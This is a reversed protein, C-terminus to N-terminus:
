KKEPPPAAGLKEPMDAVVYAMVAVAAIDRRLDEPRDKDLTDAHTHHYDFYTSSDMSLGLGAVGKDVLEGVDAGSHGATIRTAGIPELLSAIDTARRVADADGEVSFGRPAFVGTDAELAMVHGKMEAAHDVVYQKAGRLGNEENTFLVVRITRRPRLGLRRLVTLAQMAIVCGGGDDHAGQGVDWSDIHGGIVVVEDPKESGRLEGVVNHSVVDALRRGGTRLQVRVVEGAAALRAMLEADEISVAVAPIPKQGEEFGTAGTHPSRLSRATVSRVLAAVAGLRAARAPGKNRYPSAEGYGPGDKETWQRMPHNFLVIKGKVGAAGLRDLEDFDRVVVVEGSIGKKATAGSGGLQLLALPHDVPATIRGWEEGRVWRPVMVKEGRVNEHGDAKLAAIAWEIARDLAPSGSLRHGIRDTLHALKKWGDEDKEAAAIIRAAVERYQDAIPTAPRETRERTVPATPAAAVPEEAPPDVPDAPAQTSGCALLLAVACLRLM